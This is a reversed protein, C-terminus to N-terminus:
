SKLHGHSQENQTWVRQELANATSGIELHSEAADSSKTIPWQDSGENGDLQEQPHNNGL